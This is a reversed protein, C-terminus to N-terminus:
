HNKYKIFNTHPFTKNLTNNKIGLKRLDDAVQLFTLNTTETDYYINNTEFINM